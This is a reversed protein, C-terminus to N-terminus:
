GPRRGTHLAVAGFLLNRWGVTGWGAQRLATALQDQDLWAGASEALYAYASPDSSFPRALVPMVHGTYIQNLRRLTKVPPHSTELVALRGGPKTVRALEALATAVDAVNRLGFSITVADYAEDRFPLKLADGAVFTVERHNRHGVTLMGLSFDCAVARAGAQAFPLTSAGTGAALDLVTEGAQLQLADAVLRRWRREQGFTMVANTRDYREAVADFMRAIDDPRKELTARTM